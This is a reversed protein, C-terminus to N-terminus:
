PLIAELTARQLKIDPLATIWIRFDYLWIDGFTSWRFSARFCHLDRELNLQQDIVKKRKFDYGTSYSIRWHKTLPGSLSVSLHSRYPEKQYTHSLRVTWTRQQELTDESISVRRSVRVETTLTLNKWEGTYYDYYVNGRLNVPKGPFLQGSLTISSLPKENEKFNYSFSMNTTLFNIKTEKDGRLFKAQYENSLSFSATQKGQIPGYGRFGSIWGQEIEPTISYSLSPKIIQLFKQIPGIGFKSLGYIVTTLGTRFTPVIRARYPTGSTDRDFLTATLNLSPTLKFYKLLTFPSTASTRGDMVWRYMTDQTSWGGIVSFSNSIQLIGLSYPITNASIKPITRTFTNRILDRREEFVATASLTKWRRTYSFYSVLESQIWQEKDESYDFIYSKDSVFSVRAVIRGNKGLDQNHTGNLSWRM